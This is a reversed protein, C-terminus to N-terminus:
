LGIIVYIVISNADVLKLIAVPYMIEVKYHTVQDSMIDHVILVASSM